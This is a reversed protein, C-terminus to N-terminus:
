INFIGRNRNYRNNSSISWINRPALKGQEVAENNDLRTIPFNITESSMSEGNVNKIEFHWKAVEAEASGQKATLYKAWAYGAIITAIIILIILIIEIYHLISKKAKEQAKKEKM